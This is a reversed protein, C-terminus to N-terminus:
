EGKPAVQALVYAEQAARSLRGRTPKALGAAVAFARVEALPATRTVRRAGKGEPKASMTLTKPQPGRYKVRRGKNFAEITSKPLRGRGPKTPIGNEAAWARVDAATAFKSM